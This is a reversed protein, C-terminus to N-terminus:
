FLALFHEFLDAAEFLGYLELTYTLMILLISHYLFVLLLLDPLVPFIILNAHVLVDSTLLIVQLQAM